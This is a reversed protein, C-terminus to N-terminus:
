GREDQGRLRRAARLVKAVPRDEPVPRRAAEDTMAELADMAAALRDRPRVKAPNHWVHDPGPRQPALDALDGIVHVGRDAIWETWRATQQEAWDFLRPPLQVPESGRAALSEHGLMGRVLHDYAPSRRQSRTMRRNLALLVMTEPVGLSENARATEEPAWAPDIGFAECYRLWLDGSGRQPVTVVHIREPPLDRGWRELVSPLDFSRAFWSQGAVTKDLFKRYGWKRGQKVTEQWGAPLQRALDRVSYVLHLEAGDGLEELARDVHRQKAAGLIEHSIVVTGRLGHVARVLAPWAGKAHGEPGGWDQGLLDLAARFHFTDPLVLRSGTPSTCATARSSAHPQADLRSQLFTTGTKPAGVHLYIRRRPADTMADNHRQSLAYSPM